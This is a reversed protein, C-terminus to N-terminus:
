QPPSLIVTATSINLRPNQSDMGTCKFSHYPQYLNHPVCKTHFASGQQAFITIISDMIKTPQTVPTSIDTATCSLSCSIFARLLGRHQIPLFHVLFKAVWQTVGRMPLPMTNIQLYTCTLPLNPRNQGIKPMHTLWPQAAQQPASNGHWVKRQLKLAAFCTIYCPAKSCFIKLSEHRTTTNEDISLAIEKEPLLVLFYYIGLPFTRTGDGQLSAFSSDDNAMAWLSWLMPVQVLSHTIASYRSDTLMHNRSNVRPSSQGIFEQHIVHRHM